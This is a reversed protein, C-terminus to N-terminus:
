TQLNNVHQAHGFLGRSIDEAHEVRLQKEEALEATWVDDLHTHKSPSM